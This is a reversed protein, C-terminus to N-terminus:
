DGCDDWVAAAIFRLLQIASPGLGSCPCATTGVQAMSEISSDARVIQELRDLRAALSALAKSTGGMAPSFSMSGQLFNEEIVRVREDLDQPASM